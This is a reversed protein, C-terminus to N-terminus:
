TSPIVRFWGCGDGGMGTQFKTVMTGTPDLVAFEDFDVVNTMPCRWLSPDTSDPLSVLIRQVEGGDTIVSAPAALEGSAVDEIPAQLGAPDGEDNRRHVYHCRILTM